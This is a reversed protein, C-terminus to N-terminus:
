AKSDTPVKSDTVTTKSDTVTAKTGSRSRNDTKRATVRYTYMLALTPLIEAVFICVLIVVMDYSLVFFVTATEYILILGQLLLGTSAV